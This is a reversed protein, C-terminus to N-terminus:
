GTVKDLVTLGTDYIFLDIVSEMLYYNYNDRDGFVIVGNLLFDKIKDVSWYLINDSDEEDLVYDSDEMYKTNNNITYWTTDETYHPFQYAFVANPVISQLKGMFAQFLTEDHGYFSKQLWITWFYRLKETLDSFVHPENFGEDKFPLVTYTFADLHEQAYKAFKNNTDLCLAHTSSSNTEFVSNRIQRKM